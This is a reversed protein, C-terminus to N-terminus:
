FTRIIVLYRPHTACKFKDISPHTLTFTKHIAHLNVTASSSSLLGATASPLHPNRQLPLVCLLSHQQNRKRVTYTKYGYITDKPITPPM